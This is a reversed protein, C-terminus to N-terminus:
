KGAPGVMPFYLLRKLNALQAAKLQEVEAESLQRLAGSNPLRDRDGQSGILRHQHDRSRGNNSGPRGRRPPSRRSGGSTTGRPPAGQRADVPRGIVTNEDSIAFADDGKTGVVGAAAPTSSPTSSGEPRRSSAAAQQGVVVVSTCSSSSASRREPSAQDSFIEEHAFRPSPAAEALAIDQLDEPGDGDEEAQSNEFGGSRDSRSSSSGANEGGDEAPTGFALRKTRADVSITQGILETAVIAVDAGAPARDSDQTSIIPDVGEDSTLLLKLRKVLAFYVYVNYACTMWLPLYFVVFRLASGYSNRGQIWCWFGAPGYGHTTLVCLTIVAPVGWCVQSIFDFASIM